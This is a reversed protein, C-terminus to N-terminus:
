STPSDAIVQWFVQMNRFFLMGNPGWYDLVNPFVDNDMFQSPLQGAGFRGWQGYAYRLRITTQGADVGVGFLDFEFRVHVDGYKTPTVAKVGFRSQRPSLWTRHFGGFEDQFAPLKSPRNVDFWNQDNTAFDFGLDGQAFGYIEIVPLTDKKQTERRQADAHGVTVALAVSAMWASLMMTHKTM